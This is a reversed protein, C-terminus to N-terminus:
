RMKKKLLLRNKELTIADMEYSTDEIFYNGSIIENTTNFTLITLKENEVEVLPVHNCDYDGCAYSACGGDINLFNEYKNYKYGTIEHVPTHGVITFYEKNGITNILEQRTWVLDGVISNNDKITYPCEDLVLDPCKAHVLVIPKDKIAEEFKHYIKLNSIFINADILQQISLSKVTIEGGNYFWLNNPKIGNPLMDKVTQYMMLEHNGGLYEFKINYGNLIKDKVDLLMRGSGYGRDILDGNIYLTIEENTTEQLNNLYNLINKYALINGHLDSVIFKKM